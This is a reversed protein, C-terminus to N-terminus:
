GRRGNVYLTTAEEGLAGIGCVAIFVRSAGIFLRLM